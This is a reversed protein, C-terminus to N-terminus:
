YKRGRSQNARELVLVLDTGQVRFDGSINVNGGTGGLQDMIQSPIIYEKGGPNDGVVALMPGSTIGGKAFKPLGSLQGFLGKFGSLFNKAGAGFSAGGTAAGIIAALLAATAAAAALRVIVGRIANAFAGMVNQGGNAINEFVSQFAGGLVTTIGESLSAIRQEIPDFAGKLLTPDVGKIKFGVPITPSLGQQKLREIVDPGLFTKFDTGKFKPEIEVKLKPPTKPQTFKLKSFDGSKSQELTLAKIQNELNFISIATEKLATQKNKEATVLLKTSAGEISGFSRLSAGLADWMDVQEAIDGNQLKSKKEYEKTLLNDLAQMKAKRGIAATLNDVAITTAQTNVNELNLNALYGPYQKQLEKIANVRAIRSNGEDQAVALLSRIANVESQASAASKSLEETYEAQAKQARQAEATVSSFMDPFKILLASVVSLAIGVGAPGILQGALAKFAGGASKTETQLRQFSELLPNLNNQIAMFGWPSDQAIRGLNSLAQGAQNAGISAKGGFEKMVTEARKMGRELETIDAGVKAKLQAEM